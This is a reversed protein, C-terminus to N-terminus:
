FFLGIMSICGCWLSQAMAVGIKNIAMYALVAAPSWICAGAVGMWIFKIELFLMWLSSLLIAVAVYLQFIVTHIKAEKVTKLKFPISNVGFFLVCFFVAIYGKIAEDIVLM